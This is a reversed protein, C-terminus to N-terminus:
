HRRREMRRSAAVLLGGIGLWLGAFSAPDIVAMGTRALAAGSVVVPRTVSFGLVEAESCVEISADCPNCEQVSGVCPNCEQVSGVCPNCDEVDADCPNCDEVSGVCPDCDEVDADCPDCDETQPNCEPDGPDVCGTHAPNTKAIGHNGDCEYGNNHDQPGPQQGPPNKNDAKGVCGACPKCTANGGENGNESPLGKRTSDYPGEVNAGTGNDDATSPPQPLTPDGSTGATGETQHQSSQSHSASQEAGRGNDNAASNGNDAGYANGNGPDAMAPSALAILAACGVGFAV